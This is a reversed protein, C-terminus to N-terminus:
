KLPVIGKMASPPPRTLLKLITRQVRSLVGWLMCIGTFAQLFGAGREHEM